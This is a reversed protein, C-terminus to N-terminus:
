FRGTGDRTIALPIAASRHRRRWRDAAGASDALGVVAGLIAVSIGIGFAVRMPPHGHDLLEPHSELLAVSVVSGVFPAITFYAARRYERGILHSALPALTLGTLATYIGARRTDVDDRAAFTAGGAALPVIAVAAGLALSLGVPPAAADGEAAGVRASTFAVLLAVALAAYVFRV